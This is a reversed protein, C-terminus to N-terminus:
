GMARLLFELAFSAAQRQIQQRDGKEFQRQAVQEFGPGVVAFCVFGVPKEPNGGTPGAIGTVSVSWQCGLAHRAGQAMARAVPLSVEGHVQLLSRPVHLINEKVEGAYCVVGGRYFSSVGSQACIWSSLLGGTCSEALGVTLGRTKCLAALESVRQESSDSM